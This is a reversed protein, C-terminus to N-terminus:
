LNQELNQFKLNQFNKNQYFLHLFMFYVQMYFKRSTLIKKVFNCGILHDFNQGFKKTSKKMIVWDFITLFGLFKVYMRIKRKQM